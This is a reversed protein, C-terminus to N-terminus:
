SIAFKGVVLDKIVITLTIYFGKLGVDIVECDTPKMKSVLFNVSVPLIFSLFNFSKLDFTM